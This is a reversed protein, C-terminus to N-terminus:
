GIKNVEDFCYVILEQMKLIDKISEFYIRSGGGLHAPAEDITYGKVLTNAKEPTIKVSLSKKTSQLVFRIFWKTSVRNKISYYNIAPIDKIEKIDKGNKELITKVLNLATLEEDTPERQPKESNKDDTSKIEGEVQLVTKNQTDVMEPKTQQLLGTSVMDLITANISKKVISRYRDIVKTTVMVEPTTNKILFRVFEDSPTNFLIKLFDNFVTTYALTEAFESLKENDFFDKKLCSLFELDLDKFALFSLIHFPKEDMKNPKKLDTFFRYEYGNTVIGLKVDTTSNFYYELQSDFNTLDTNVPKAEIFIIPKGEKLIAYDVRTGAKKGYDSTFEAKVELPNSANYGLLNIFPIILSQKTQEENSIHPMRENIDIILKQTDEKFGMYVRSVIVVHKYYSILEYKSKFTDIYNITNWNNACIM